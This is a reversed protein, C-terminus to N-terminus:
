TTPLTLHTYSVPGPCIIIPQEADRVTLEFSCTDTNGASDTATLTVSNVQVPYTGTTPTIPATGCNDSSSAGTSPDIPESMCEGQANDVTRPGPCMIIPNEMDNVTLQYNCNATNGASDTATLTVTNVGVPYTDTTPTIPATGCNDSSSAGTSPDIPESM